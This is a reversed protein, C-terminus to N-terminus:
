KENLSDVHKRFSEVVDDMDPIENENGYNEDIWDSITEPKMDSNWATLEQVAFEKWKDFVYSDFTEKLSDKDDCDGDSYEEDLFCTIINYINGFQCTEFQKENAYDMLIPRAWETSGIDNGNSDIRLYEYISDRDFWLWDNLETDTCGEPFVEEAYQFLREQQEYSLDELTNKGGSWPHFEDFSSIETIIIM